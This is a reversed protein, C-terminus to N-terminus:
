SIGRRIMDIQSKVYYSSSGLYRAAERAVEGYPAVYKYPCASARTAQARQVSSPGVLASLCYRLVTRFLHKLNQAKMDVNCMSLVVSIKQDKWM